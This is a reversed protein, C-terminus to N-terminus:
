YSIVHVKFTCPRHRNGPRHGAKCKSLDRLHFASRPPVTARSGSQRAKFEMVGNLPRIHTKPLINCSDANAEKDTFHPNHCDRSGLITPHVLDILIHSASSYYTFWSTGITMELGSIWIPLVSTLVSTRCSLLCSLSGDGWSKLDTGLVYAPVWDVNASHIFFLIYMYISLYLHIHFTCPVHHFM